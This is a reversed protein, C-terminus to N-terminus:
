SIPLHRLVVIRAFTMEDGDGTQYQTLHQSCAFGTIGLPIVIAAIPIACKGYWAKLSLHV